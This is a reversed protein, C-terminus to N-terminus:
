FISAANLWLRPLGTCSEGFPSPVENPVTGSDNSDVGSTEVSGAAIQNPQGLPPPTILPVPRGSEHSGNDVRLRVAPTGDLRTPEIGEQSFLLRRLFDLPIDGSQLDENGLM